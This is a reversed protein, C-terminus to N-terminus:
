PWRGSQKSEEKTEDRGTGNSRMDQGRGMNQKRRMDQRREIGVKAGKGYLIKWERGVCVDIWLSYLVM